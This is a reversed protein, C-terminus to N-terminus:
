FYKFSENQENKIKQVAIQFTNEICKKYVYERIAADFDLTQIVKRERLQGHGM